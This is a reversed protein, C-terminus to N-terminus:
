DLQRWGNLYAQNKSEDTINLLQIVKDRFERDNLYLENLRKIEAVVYECNELRANIQTEDM